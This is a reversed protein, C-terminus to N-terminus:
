MWVFLALQEHACLWEWSQKTGPLHCQPHCLQHVSERARGRRRRHLSRLGRHLKFEYTNVFVLGSGPTSITVSAGSAASTPSSLGATSAVPASDGRSSGSAPSSGSSSASAASTSPSFSGGSFGAFPAVSAGWGLFSQPSNEARFLWPSWAAADSLTGFQDLSDVSPQGDNQDFLDLGSSNPDNQDNVNFQSIKPLRLM